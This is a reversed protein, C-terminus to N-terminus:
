RPWFIAKVLGVLAAIWFFAFIAAVIWYAVPRNERTGDAGLLWGFRRRRLGLYLIHGFLLLNFAMGAVDIPLIAFGLVIGVVVLCSALCGSSEEREM